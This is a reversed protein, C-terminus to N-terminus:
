VDYHYTGTWRGCKPLSYWYCKLVRLMVLLSNEVFIARQDYLAKSMQDM